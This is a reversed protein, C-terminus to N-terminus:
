AAPEEPHWLRMLVDTAYGLDLAEGHWAPVIASPDVHAKDAQLDAARGTTAPAPAWPAQQRHFTFQQAGDATVSFEHLHLARHHTGCLLILNALDTSGNRSWPVVHHAHLFRTRGCGPARCGGDRMHLARLQAPSPRRRRRGFELVCGDRVAVERRTADCDAEEAEADTLAPGEDLHAGDETRHVIVEAATCHEPAAVADRSIEAMAVLAPGVDSPPPGTLDSHEASCEDPTRTRELEARTLGALVKAGDPASFRGWLVLDGTEEDWRWQTRRRAEAREAREADTLAAQEDRDAVQRLGRVLREVHAAPAALAIDVLDDETAATAVRSLARAKSYSLRGASLETSTRPLDSLARAVRVHERATRLDMGCRWSLWHACTLVGPAVWGEQEDFEALLRLFDATASAIQGALTCLQQAVEDNRAVIPNPLSLVTMPFRWRPAAGRPGQRHSGARSWRCNRQRDGASATLGSPGRAAASEELVPATLPEGTGLLEGATARLAPDAVPLVDTHGLARLADTDLHRDLAARAVGHLRRLTFEPLSALETVALIAEPGPLATLEAGAVDPVAGHARNLRERLAVGLTDWGRDPAPQRLWRPPAGRCNRGSPEGIHMQLGDAGHRGGPHEHPPQM